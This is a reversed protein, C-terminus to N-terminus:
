PVRDPTFLPQAFVHVLVCQVVYMCTGVMAFALLGAPKYIYALYACVFVFICARQAKHALNIRHM